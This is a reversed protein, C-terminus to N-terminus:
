NNFSISTAGYKNPPLYAIESQKKYEETPFKALDQWTQNAANSSTYYSTLKVKLTTGGKLSSKTQFKSNIEQRNESKKM